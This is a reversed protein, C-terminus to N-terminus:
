GGMSVEGVGGSVGDVGRGGGKDRGLLWADLEVELGPTRQPSSSPTHWGITSVDWASLADLWKDRMPCDRLVVFIGKNPITDIETDILLHVMNAHSPVLNAKIHRSPVQVLDQYPACPERVTLSGNGVILLVCKASLKLAPHAQLTVIGRFCGLADRAPATCQAEADHGGLARQLIERSHELDTHLVATSRPGLSFASNDQPNRNVDTGPSNSGSGGRLDLKQRKPTENLGGSWKRAAEQHLAHGPCLVLALACVAATLRPRRPM